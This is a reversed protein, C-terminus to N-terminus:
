NQADKVKFQTEKLVFIRESRLSVIAQSQTKLNLKSAAYEPVEIEISRDSGSPVFMVLVSAGKPYVATIVGSLLNDDKRPLDPRLIMVDEKRIGFSVTDGINFKFSTSSSPISIKAKLEESYVLYNNNNMAIIKGSFINKIGFYKAVDLDSPFRYVKEKKDTQRITGEIMVSVYDSLFFTEELDHSVMLITLEYAKQLNKLLIWLDKKMGEHLASFPEDLLLYKRGSALARALAVRQKEGGSLNKIDKELLHTIELAEALESALKYLETKNKIKSQKIGYIINEWVTLHPFLALDQPVYSFGRKHPPLLTVNKGDVWIEGKQLKRLGLTAELLTTKGCGTPGIVVHYSGSQVALTVDKLLFDKARVWLGKIEIM